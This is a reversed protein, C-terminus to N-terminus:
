QHSLLTDDNELSIQYTEESTSSEIELDRWAPPFIDDPIQIDHRFSTAIFQDAEYSRYLFEIAERPVGTMIFSNQDSLEAQIKYSTSFSEEDYLRELIRSPKANYLHRMLQDLTQGKLDWPYSHTDDDDNDSSDEQEPKLLFCYIMVNKPYPEDQQEEETRVIPDTNLVEIPYFNDSVDHPEWSAMHESWAADWENGYDIFIETGEDIDQTAIIELILGAHPKELVEHTSLQLWESHHSNM